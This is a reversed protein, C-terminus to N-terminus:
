LLYIFDAKLTEIFDEKSQPKSLLFGQAIDCHAERIWHLQEKTEIGEAVTLLKLEKTNTIFNKVTHAIRENEINDIFKKDLKVVDIPLLGFRNLSSTGSGFDDLAISFGHEKFDNIKKILESLPMADIVSEVIELELKATDIHYEKTIAVLEEVLNEKSLTVPSLNCAINIHACLKKNEQLFKCISEFVYVDLKAIFGNKEFVPIFDNPYIKNEAPPHWRVLAEAGNIKLTKLDIKPQFEIIFERHELASTMRYTINLKDHYQKNMVEDFTYFTSTHINKGQRRALDSFTIMDSINISTDNVIYTGVSFSVAYHQGTKEKFSPTLVEEVFTRLQLGDDTIKKFILFYDKNYRTILADENAYFKKLLDAMNLLLQEATETGYYAVILKFLDIDIGIFEYENEKIMTLKKEVEGSFATFSLLSTKSDIKKKNATSRKKFFFVSYVAFLVICVLLIITLILNIGIYEPASFDMQELHPEANYLLTTIYAIDSLIVNFIPLYLTPLNKSLFFRQQVEINSAIITNEKSYHERIFAMKGLVSADLLTRSFLAADIKDNDYSKLLADSTNFFVIKANPFEEYLEQFSIPYHLLGITKKQTRLEEISTEKKFIMMLREDHYSVTPEYHQLKELDAVTTIIIDYDANNANQEDYIEYKVIFEYQKALANLMSIVTGSAQGSSDTYQFPQHSKNYGVTFRRGKLLEKEEQLLTRELEGGPTMLAHAEQTSFLLSLPIISLVVLFLYSYFSDLFTRYLRNKSM